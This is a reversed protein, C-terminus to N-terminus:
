RRLVEDDGGSQRRDDVRVRCRVGRIRGGASEAPGGQVDEDKRRQGQSADRQDCGRLYEHQRRRHPRPDPRVHPGEPDGPLQLPKRSGKRGVEHHQGQHARYQSKLAAAMPGTQASAPAAVALAVAVICLARM